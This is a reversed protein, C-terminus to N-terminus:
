DDSRHEGYSFAVDAIEIDLFNSIMIKDKEMMAANDDKLLGKLLILKM